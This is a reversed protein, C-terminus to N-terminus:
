QGLGTRESQPPVQLGRSWESRPQMVQQFLPQMCAMDQSGIDEDLDQCSDRQGLLKKELWSHPDWGPM